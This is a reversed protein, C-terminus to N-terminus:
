RPPPLLDQRRAAEREARDPDLRVTRGEAWLRALDRYHPSFPHGVQGTAAIAESTRGALDAVLRLGAAHHVPFPGGPGVARYGAVALTTADGGIPIAISLLPGLIPLEGLPRHPMVAPHEFGWRWGRWDGGLRGALAAYAEGLAEAVIDECRERAATRVDDCWVPRDRLLRALLGHRPGSVEAALPGLEDALLRHGLAERWAAFLLPEPRDLRMTGDWAELAAVIEPLPTPAPASSQALPLVVPLLTRAAGSLLDLQIAAAGEQDFARPEALLQALRRARLPGDWESTILYPYDPGVVRNNANFLVGAPPDVSRPLAEAPVFGLWDARGDRAEIPLSGDHDRRIPVRGAVALGIRGSRDGVVVNQVPSAFLSLADLLEDVDRARGMAEAAALTRDDTRLGIWQLALLEDPPAVEGARVIDSVIPGFRTERVLLREAERGRVAITEIREVFPESGGAVLYRGPDAPDPRIRVLDESDAGTTTLGWALQENRGIVVAPLGPITGGALLLGPAELVALYWVGPVRLPLHPDSALLAAGSATRSGALVFANSGLGISQPDPLVEVLGELLAAPPLDARAISVPGDSDEESLLDALREPPLIHALRARLLERRWSGAVELAMLRHVLLTDAARWPEPRVGLVLLEPPLVRARAFAASVGEAYADLKAREEPSYAALGTEAVQALGLTRFFRDFGLGAEGVLEALRGRGIRRTIELQVLRDTGHVFGLARWLDRESTARITPIAHADRLIVVPGDLGSLVIEGEHEPLSAWSLGVIAGVAVLVLAAFALAIRAVIRRM